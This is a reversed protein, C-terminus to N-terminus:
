SGWGTYVPILGAHGQYNRASSYRWHMAEDVYGRKVPNLHIYDLKQRLMEKSQILQPHSGEQWFQYNSDTKHSKKYFSLQELLIHINNEKLYRLIEKATFAKFDHVQQQLDPAQLICHMHNELIVFSYVKVEKHNQRWTLADLIIQVTDPRTFIPLWNLVTFTLFHPASNDTIIYRSRGM